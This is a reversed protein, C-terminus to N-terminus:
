TKSAVRVGLQKALALLREGNPHSPTAGSKYGLLTSKPIGARAAMREFSLGKGRLQEILAPWDIPDAVGV